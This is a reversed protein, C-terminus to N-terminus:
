REVPELPLEPCTASLWFIWSATLLTWCYAESILFCVPISAVAVELRLCFASSVHFAAWAQTCSALSSRWFKPVPVPRETLSCFWLRNICCFSESFKFRTQLCSSSHQVPYSAASASSTLRKAEFGFGATSMRETSKSSPDRVSGNNDFTTRCTSSTLRASTSVCASITCSYACSIVLKDLSTIPSCRAMTSRASCAFAEPSTSSLMSAFM